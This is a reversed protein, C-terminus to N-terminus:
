LDGTGTLDLIRRVPDSPNVIEMEIGLDKALERTSLLSGLGASDVFRVGSLDLELRRVARERLLRDLGSELKFAARMDLEGSVVLAAREDEDDITTVVEFDDM